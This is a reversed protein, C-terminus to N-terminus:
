DKEMITKKNEFEVLRQNYAEKLAQAHAIKPKKIGMHYLLYQTFYPNMVLLPGILYTGIFNKKHIGEYMSNRNIGTGRIAKVFYFNENSGLTMSFQSKCGVIKRQNFDGYFNGNYRRKYDRIATFDFINLGPIQREGDIIERFLVEMANGTFLFSVKEDILTEIREKYPMLKTIIKEQARETMPGMYILNVDDHEAFYPVDKMSTEIFEADPLCEKLYMMNGYDGFLNCYEPFLIEIKM